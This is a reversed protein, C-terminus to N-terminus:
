ALNRPAPVPLGPSSADLRTVASLPAPSRSRDTGGDELPEFSPRRPPLHSPCGGRGCERGGAGGFRPPSPARASGSRDVGTRACASAMRNGFPGGGRHRGRERGHSGLAVPRPPARSEVVDPSRCRPFRSLAWVSFRSECRRVSRLALPARACCRALTMYFSLLSHRNGAIAARRRGRFHAPHVDENLALGHRSIPRVTSTWM